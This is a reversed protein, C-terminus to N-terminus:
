LSTLGQWDRGPVGPSGSGRPGPTSGQGSSPAHRRPPALAGRVLPCRFDPLQVAAALLIRPPVFPWSRPGIRAVPHTVARDWLLPGQWGVRGRGTM